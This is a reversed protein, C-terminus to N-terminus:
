PQLITEVAGQVGPTGGQGGTGGVGPALESADDITPAPGSLVFINVAIGGAGGGGSGGPGGDGGAGGRGPTSGGATSGPNGGSGGEGGDGGTGGAGGRGGMGGSVRTDVITLPTDIVWITFSGGGPGGGSGGLGGCGGSGGGGGGGGCSGDCACGYGSGGGGGGGGGGPQGVAGTGGTNGVWVGGVLGGGEGAAGPDGQSGDTGNQGNEANGPQDQTKGDGGLGGLGGWGNEGDGSSTGGRGGRPDLGNCDVSGAAGRTASTCGGTCIDIINKDICDHNGGQGGGNGDTGDGGDSGDFGTAGTASNIWCDDIIVQESDELWVTYGNEGRERGGTGAVSLGGLRLEGQVNRVTIAPNGRRIKTAMVTRNWNDLPEFGGFIGFPQSLDLSELLIEELYDGRAILVQGRGRNLAAEIGEAVTVFPANRSGDGGDAADADVFVADLRMGDIGDCNADDGQADPWDYEATKMCECGPIEPDLDAFGSMCYYLCSGNVCEAVENEEPECRRGEPGCYDPGQEPIEEEMEIADAESEDLDDVEGAAEEEEDGDVPPDELCYAGGDGDDQCNEDCQKVYECSCGEPCADSSSCGPETYFLKNMYCFYGSLVGEVDPFCDTLPDYECLEEEEPEPEVEAPADDLDDLDRDTGTDTDGPTTESESEDETDAEPLEYYDTDGTTGSNDADDDAGASLGKTDECGLGLFVLGFLVIWVPIIAKM